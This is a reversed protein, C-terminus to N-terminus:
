DLLDRDVSQALAEIRDKQAHEAIKAKQGLHVRVVIEM